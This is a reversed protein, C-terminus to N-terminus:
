SIKETEKNCHPFFSCTQLWFFLYFFFIWHLHTVSIGRSKKELERNQSVIRNKISFLLPDINIRHFLKLLSYPIETTYVGYTHVM